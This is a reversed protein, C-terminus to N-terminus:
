LIRITPSATGSRFEDIAFNVFECFSHGAEFMAGVREMLNPACLEEDTLRHDAVFDRPRVLSLHEWDRPIGKPATKLPNAGVLPYLAQFEPNRIIDLYEDTNEYISRRIAAIEKSELCVTGVAVFAEGPEVHLYYGAHNVKKGAPPCIFIGIHTKYPTKDLSFRTDRYIRYTCDAVRLGAADPDFEAVREILATALLEVRAKVETYLAKHAQFWERNNNAALQRLFELTLNM